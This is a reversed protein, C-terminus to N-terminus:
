GAYRGTKQQLTISDDLKKQSQLFIPKPWVQSFYEKIKAKVERSTKIELKGQLFPHIEERLLRQFRQETDAKIENNLENEFVDLALL